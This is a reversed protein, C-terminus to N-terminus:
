RSVTEVRVPFQRAFAYRVRTDEDEDDHEDDPDRCEDAASTRCDVREAVIQERGDLQAVLEVGSGGELAAAERPRLRVLAYQLGDPMLCMAGAHVKYVREGSRLIGQRLVLWAERLAGGPAREVSAVPRREREGDTFTVTTDLPVLAGQAGADCPTDADRYAPDADVFLALGVIELDLRSTEPPLRRSELSLTISATGPALPGPVEPEGTGAGASGGGGADGGPELGGPEDGATDGGADPGAGGTEGSGEPAPGPEDPPECGLALLGAFVAAVITSRRFVRAEESRSRRSPLLALRAICLPPAPARRDRTQSSAFPHVPEYRRPEADGPVQRAVRPIDPRVV